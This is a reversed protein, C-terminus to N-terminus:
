DPKCNLVDTVLSQVLEQVQPEDTSLLISFHAVTKHRNLAKPEAWVQPSFM